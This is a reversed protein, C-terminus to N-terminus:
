GSLLNEFILCKFMDMLFSFNSSVAAKGWVRSIDSVENCKYGVVQNSLM